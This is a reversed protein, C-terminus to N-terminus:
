TGKQLDKLQTEVAAVDETHLAQTIQQKTVQHVAVNQWVLLKSGIM